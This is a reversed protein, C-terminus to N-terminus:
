AGQSTARAVAVGLRAARYGPWHRWQRHLPVLADQRRRGRHDRQGPRRLERVPALVECQPAFLTFVNHMRYQDNGKGSSGEMLATAGLQAGLHAVKAAILQRTMSTSVPYGEYDSNAQIAKTLWVEAFEDRADLMIPEIGLQAAKQESLAIEDGGQGVDVTIAHLTAAHYKERALVVCLASDLGGSYALAIHHGQPVETAAFKALASQLLPSSIGIPTSAGAADRAAPTNSSM